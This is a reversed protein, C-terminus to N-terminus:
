RDKRMKQVKNVIDRAVAMLKLDEDETFDLIVQTEDDGNVDLNPNDLDLRDIEAEDAGVVIDVISDFSAVALYLPTVRLKM